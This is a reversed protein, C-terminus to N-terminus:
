PECSDESTKRQVIVSGDKDAIRVGTFGDTKELEYQSLAVCMQEASKKNSTPSDYKTMIWIADKPGADVSKMDDTWGQDKYTDSAYKRFPHPANPDVKTKTKSAKPTSTHTSSPASSSAAVPTITPSPTASSSLQHGLGLGGLAFVVATSTYGVLHHIPLSFRRTRHKSMVTRRTVPERAQARKMRITEVDRLIRNVDRKTTVLVYGARVWALLTAIAWLDVAIWMPSMAYFWDYHVYGFLKGYGTLCSLPIAFYWMYNTTKENVDDQRGHHHLHDDVAGDV